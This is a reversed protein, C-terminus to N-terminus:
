ALPILIRETGVGACCPMAGRSGVTGSTGREVELLPHIRDNQQQARHQMSCFVQNVYLSM